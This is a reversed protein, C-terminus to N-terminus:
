PISVPQTLTQGQSLAYVFDELVEALTIFQPGTMTHGIGTADNFVFTAGGGPLHSPAAQIGAAIGAINTMSNASVAFVAGPSALSPLAGASVVCCGDQPPAPDPTNGAAIWDAYDRSDTTPQGVPVCAGDARRVVWKPDATLIYEAM